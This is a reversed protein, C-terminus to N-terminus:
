GGSVVGQRRTSEERERALHPVQKWDMHLLRAAARDVSWPDFGALLKGVPPNCVPGGALHEAVGVSADLLTADPMRYRTIDIIVEQLDGQFAAQRWHNLKGALHLPPALGVMNRLTGSLSTESDAKLVPASILFSELAVEPIFMEPFAKCRPDRLKRVPSAGLDILKVDHRAAMATYGLTEFVASMDGESGAGGEAIALEARSCAHLYQVLVECCKPHTTHPHPDGGLLNPKILIFSEGAVIDRLGIADLVIPVSEEYSLFGAVSASRGDSM